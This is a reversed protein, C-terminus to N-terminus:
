LIGQNIGNLSLMRSWLYKRMKRNLATKSTIYTFHFCGIVNRILGYLEIYVKLLCLINTWLSASNEFYWFYDVKKVKLQIIKIFIACMQLLTFLPFIAKSLFFIFSPIYSYKYILWKLLLQKLLVQSQNYPSISNGEVRQGVVWRTALGNHVWLWSETEWIEVAPITSILQRKQGTYM